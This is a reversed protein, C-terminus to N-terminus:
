IGALKVINSLEPDYLVTHLVLAQQEETKNNDLILEKLKKADRSKKVGAAGITWDDCFHNYQRTRNNFVDNYEDHNIATNSKMGRKTKRRVYLRKSSPSLLFRDCTPHKKNSSNGSKRPMCKKKAYTM